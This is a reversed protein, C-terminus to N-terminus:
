GQEESTALMARYCDRIPASDPDRLNRHMWAHEGASLMKGTAEEPVVRWGSARLSALFAEWYAHHNFGSMASMPHSGVEWNADKRAKILAKTVDSMM